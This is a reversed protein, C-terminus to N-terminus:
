DFPIDAPDIEEDPYQSGSKPEENGQSVDKGGGKIKEVIEEPTPKKALEDLVAQPIEVKKPSANLTYEVEKTGANKATLTLPHPFPLEFGWDPDKSIERIEKVVTYPLKAQKIVDDQLVWCLGKISTNRDGEQAVRYKKTAPDYVQVLQACHSLLVFQQRGETINFYDKSREEKIREEQQDVWDFNEPM